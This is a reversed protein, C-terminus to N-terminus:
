SSLTLGSSVAFSAPHRIAIDCMQFSALEILGQKKLTYPDVIMEMAGGFQGILLDNWNGFILGIENSGSGLDNRVQNTARAVYGDMEGELITGEWIKRSGNVNFELIGKAKSAFKPRTLWGLAGLYANGEAVIDEMALLDQYTPMGSSFAHSSVGTANYIGTPQNSTGTGHLAAKDWALAHAAAISERVMAEVDVSSQVLLQRSYATAAQLTKPTLTVLDTKVNSGTVDSGSNEAVWQATVDQTQRPFGVPSSLGTLVRAGMRVTLAINRLINILEGGYQTFVVEKIYNATQSDITGSGGARLLMDLKARQEESLTAGKGYESQINSNRLSTPMFIGGLRKYSQPMRKELEDSVELELCNERRKGEAAEAAVLIARAYSYRKADGADLDITVEAAPQAIPKTKRENLIILGVESPTKGQEIWEAARESMGHENAMRVIDAVEKAGNPAASASGSMSREELQGQNPLNRIQLPYTKNASRGVGVTNDAPISVISGEMPTWNTATYKDAVGNRGEEYEYSNIRYGISVERMGEDVMRKVNQGADTSYFRLQGQLKGDKVGLNEIRGIPQEPDHNFLLNLGQGARSMDVAGADHSLVETGFWREVPAESSLSVAYRTADDPTLEPGDGDEDDTTTESDAPVENQRDVEEPNLDDDDDDSAARKKPKVKVVQIHALRLQMPLANDTLKIGM